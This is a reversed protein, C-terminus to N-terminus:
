SEDGRGSRLSACAEHFMERARRLRSAVTGPPVELMRALESRTFEELEFLVFVERLEDPMADLIQDLLGRMRQQDALDDPLLEVRPPTVALDELSEERRARQARRYNAAVRVATARLFARESGVLIDDLRRAAVIFVEQTADDLVPRAVGLRLLARWIGPSENAVLHALRASAPNARSTSTPRCRSEAARLRLAQLIM